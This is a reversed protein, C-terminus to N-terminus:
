SEGLLMPPLPHGKLREPTVSSVCGSALPQHVGDHKVLAQFLCHRRPAASRCIRRRLLGRVVAAGLRQLAVDRDRLAHRAPLSATAARLSRRPAPWAAATCVRRSGCARADDPRQCAAARAASCCVSASSFASQRTAIERSAQSRRCARNRTQREGRRSRRAFHRWLSAVHDHIGHHRVATAAPSAAATTALLDM